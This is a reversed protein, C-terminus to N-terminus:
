KVIAEQAGLKGLAEAAQSRNIDMPDALLAILPKIALPNRSAGLADIQRAKGGPISNLEAILLNVAHDDGRTALIAAEASGGASVARDLEARAELDDDAALAKLAELRASSSAQDSAAARLVARAVQRLVYGSELRKSGLWREYTDLAAMAGARALDVDVAFSAVAASGPYEALLRSALEAARATDGQALWAFGQALQGSEASTAAVPPAPAQAILTPTSAVLSVLVLTRSINM